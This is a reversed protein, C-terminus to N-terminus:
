DAKVRAFLKNQVFKTRYVYVSAISGLCAGIWYVVIHETLTNGNCGFKLSTALVPNFYGGSYNFAAVVLSTAVFSDIVTAYRMGTDNIARSAVRCMCTAIGEIVAGTLMPVQLDATCDEFARNTHNETVELNWLFQVYKFVMIGGTLEAWTKLLAVRLDTKGEVVDELHNYPCATADGWNWAWWITLTFLFIAYMSIGYNDAVIILEFCSACLEAAAIGEHFLQRVFPNGVFRDVLCRGIHALACTLVIYLASVSLSAWTLSLWATIFKPLRM